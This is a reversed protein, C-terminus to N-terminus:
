GPALVGFLLVYGAVIVLELMDAVQDEDPYDWMKGQREMFSRVPVEGHQGKELMRKQIAKTESRLEWKQQLYPQAMGIVAFAGYSLFTTYLSSRAYQACAEFKDSAEVPCGSRFPQIFLIYFFCQYANFFQFVFQKWVFAQYYADNTRPNELWVCFGTLKRWVM